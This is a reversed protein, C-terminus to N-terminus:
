GGHCIKGEVITITFTCMGINGSSDVARCTVVTAGTPFTDGSTADCTIAVIDSLDTATAQPFTAVGGGSLIEVVLTVDDPCDVDPSYYGRFVLLLWVSYQHYM